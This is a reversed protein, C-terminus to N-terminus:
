ILFHFTEPSRNDTTNYLHRHTWLIARLLVKWWQCTMKMMIIMTALDKRTRIKQKWKYTEKKPQFMRCNRWKLLLAFSARSFSSSSPAPLLNNSLHSWKFNGEKSFYFRPAFACAKFHNHYTPRHLDLYDPSSCTVTWRACCTPWVWFCENLAVNVTIYLFEWLERANVINLTKIWIDNLGSPSSLSAGCVGSIFTIAKAWYDFSRCGLMVSNIQLHHSHQLCATQGVEVKTPPLLSRNSLSCLQFPCCLSIFILLFSPPPVLVLSSSSFVLSHIETSTWINKNHCLIILSWRETFLENM